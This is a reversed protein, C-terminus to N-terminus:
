SGTTVVFRRKTKDKIGRQQMLRRLREKGVLIDGVFLEKHNHLWGYECKVEAHIVRMHALLAM